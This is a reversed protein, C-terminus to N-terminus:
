PKNEQTNWIAIHDQAIRDWSYQAVAEQRVVDRAMPQQLVEDVIRIFDDGDQYPLCGQELRSLTQASLLLPTGASVSEIIVLSFAEHKSPFVAISAANYYQNLQQGPSLEGAYRVQAAIGQEAAYAQIQAQYAEDIVGGAYLYVVDPHTKLYDKLQTIAWLQNKRDCVSGVQLIIRQTSLGLEKRFAGTEAESLPHYVETNVGNRMLHIRNAPVNLHKTFHERTRDNLTFVYDAHQVCDIEQFYRKQVTEKIDEWEGAWIYSHVTYAVKATARLKASVLKRFFFLNYQNHFHLIVDENANKLIDRLKMALSISYIVRKFKHLLGLQVDTSTFARPVKVETIPLTNALRQDAQIDLLEVNVSQKQFARVLEEVVIETAAGMQAPISTYGTGIEYIKM